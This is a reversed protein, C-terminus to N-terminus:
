YNRIRYILSYDSKNITKRADRLTKYSKALLLSLTAIASGATMIESGTYVSYVFMGLGIWTEKDSFIKDTLEIFSKKDVKLLEKIDNEVYVSIHHSINSTLNELDKEGKFDEALKWCKIKLKEIEGSRETIFEKTLSIRKKYDLSDIYPSLLQRFIEWSVVDVQEQYSWTVKKASGYRDEFQSLFPILKENSLMINDLCQLSVLRLFYANVLAEEFSNKKFFSDCYEYLPRYDVNRLVYSTPQKEKAGGYIESFQGFHVHAMLEQSAHEVNIANLLTSYDIGLRTILEKINELTKEDKNYILWISKLLGLNKLPELLKTTNQIRQESNFWMNFLTSYREKWIPNKENIFESFKFPDCGGIFMSVTPHLTEVFPDNQFYMFVSCSISDLDYLSDPYLLKM